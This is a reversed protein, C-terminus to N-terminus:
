GGWGRVFLFFLGQMILYFTTSSRILLNDVYKNVIHIVVSNDVYHPYSEQHTYNRITFTSLRLQYHTEIDIVNFLM